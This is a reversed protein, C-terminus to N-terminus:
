RIICYYCIASLGVLSETLGGVSVVLGVLVEKRYAEVELVRVMKPFVEAPNNWNM